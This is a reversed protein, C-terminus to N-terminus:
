KINRPKNTNMHMEQAQFATKSCFAIDKRSVSAAAAFCSGSRGTSSRLFSVCCCVAMSPAVLEVVVFRRIRSTRGLVIMVVLAENAAEAATLWKVAEDASESVSASAVLLAAGLDLWSLGEVVSVSIVVGLALGSDDGVPEVREDDEAFEEGDPVDFDVLEPDTSDGM